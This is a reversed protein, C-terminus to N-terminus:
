QRCRRHGPPAHGLRRRRHQLRRLLRRGRFCVAVLSRHRLAGVSRARYYYVNNLSDTKQVSYSQNTTNYTNLITAFAPDQSEQIEYGTVVSDDTTTWSLTWQSDTGGVPEPHGIPNLLVLPETKHLIPFYVTTSSIVETVASVDVVNLTGSVQATNTVLSGTTATDTLAASFEVTVPTGLDVGGTWTIVNNEAGFLGGGTVNLTGSVYALEPPLVDTMLVQDNSGSASIVITYNINTGPFATTQPTEKSASVQQLGRDVEQARLGQMVLLLMVLAGALGVLPMVRRMRLSKMAKM